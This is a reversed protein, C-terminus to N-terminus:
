LGLTLRIEFNYLTKNGFVSTGRTLLYLNKSIDWSGNLGMGFSSEESQRYGGDIFLRAKYTNLLVLNMLIAWKDAVSTGLLITEYNGRVSLLDSPRYTIGIRATSNESSTNNLDRESRFYTTSYEAFLDRRLRANLRLLGSYTNTLINLGEPDLNENESYTLQLSSSLDPYLQASTSIHYRDSNSVLLGGEFRENKSLNLTVNMTPLPITAINLSYNRYIFDPDGTAEDKTESFGISPTVFYVPQWGLRGSVLQRSSEQSIGGDFEQERQDLQLNTSARMTDTIRYSMNATTLYSTTISSFDETFLGLAEGETFNLPVDTENVALVMIETEPLNILLTFDKEAADYTVQIQDTVLEWATPDFSDRRYLSWQLAVAQLEDVQSLPDLTLRLIDIQQGIQEELAPRFSFHMRQDLAVTFAVTEFDDDGLEQNFVLGVDQEPLPDPLPDPLTIPDTVASSWQGRLPVYVAGGEPTGLTLDRNSKQFQQAFNFALRRDWLRGSTDFRAFHSRTKALSDSGLDDFQSDSYRYNLAALILDWGVNISSNTAKTGPDDLGSSSEFSETTEGFNYSLEPFFPIVWSSALTFDWSDTIDVGRERYWRTSSGSLGTRFIDNSLRLGAYPTLIDTVTMGQGRGSDGQSRTYGIGAGFSIAHTPSYSLGKGVGLSYRQQFLTQTELGEGGAQRYLWSANMRLAFVPSASGTLFLFLLLFIATPGIGTLKPLFQDMLPRTTKKESPLGGGKGSEVPAQYGVKDVAM